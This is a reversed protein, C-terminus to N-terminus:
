SAQFPIFGSAYRLINEEEATLETSVEISSSPGEQAQFHKVLLTDFIHQNVSKSLLPEDVELGIANSFRSWIPPLSSM